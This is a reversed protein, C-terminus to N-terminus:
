LIKGDAEGGARTLELRGVDYRCVLDVVESARLLGPSGIAFELLSRLDFQDPVRATVAHDHSVTSDTRM